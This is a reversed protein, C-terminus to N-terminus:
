RTLLGVVSGILVIGGLVRRFPSDGHLVEEVAWWALAIGAGVSVVTGIAGHPHFITRAVTAVLFIALPANPMQFVALDGTDPNRFFRGVASRSTKPGTSSVAPDSAM